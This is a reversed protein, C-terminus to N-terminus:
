SKKAPVQSLYQQLQKQTPATPGRSLQKLMNAKAKANAIDQPNQGLPYSQQTIPTPITSTNSGM